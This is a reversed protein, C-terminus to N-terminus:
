RPQVDLIKANKSMNCSPHALQTNAYSHEGGKSLPYIHDVHFSDPDVPSNCLQCIGGDREFVVSPLVDEVFQDRKKARRAASYKRKQERWEALLAPDDKMEEYKRKTRARVSDAYEKNTAYTERGREIVAAKFEPDNAYRERFRINQLERRRAIKAEDQKAAEDYKRQSARYRELLEPDQKRRERYAKANRKKAEPDKYPM